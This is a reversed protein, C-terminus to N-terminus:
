ENLDGQNSFLNIGIAVMGRKGGAQCIILTWM